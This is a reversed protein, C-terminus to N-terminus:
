SAGDAAHSWCRQGGGGPLRARAARHADIGEPLRRSGASGALALVPVAVRDLEDSLDTGLLRRAFGRRRAVPSQLGLDRAAEVDSRRPATGFNNRTLVLGHRPHRGLQEMADWDLARVMARHPRDDAPGHATGNLLVLGRVREAVVDPHRVALGLAITGGMSHGVVVVDRLDLAALVVVVDDVLGDFDFSDPVPTSRGFGRLDMAVVHNTRALERGLRAFTSLAAGHGHLLLVPPGTGLEEVHLHGGDPTRVTLERHDSAAGDGPAPEDAGDLGAVVWREFLDVAAVAVITTVGLGLTWRLAPM